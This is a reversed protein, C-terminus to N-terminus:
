GKLNYPFRFNFNLSSRRCAKLPQFSVFARKAPLYKHAAVAKVKGQIRAGPHFKLWRRFISIFNLLMSSPNTFIRDCYRSIGIIFLHLGACPVQASAGWLFLEVCQTALQSFLQSPRQSCETQITPRCHQCDTKIM